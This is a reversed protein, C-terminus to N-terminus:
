RTALLTITADANVASSNATHNLVGNELEIKYKSGDNGFNLNPLAHANAAKEGNIHVVPYALSIRRNFFEVMM